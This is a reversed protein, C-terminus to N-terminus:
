SGNDKKSPNKVKIRRLREDEVMRASYIIKTKKDFKAIDRDILLQIISETKELPLGLMNAIADMPIPKDGFVLKGRDDSQFMFMLLEFWVGREEYSLSQVKINKRWDGPYFQLSPLKKKM